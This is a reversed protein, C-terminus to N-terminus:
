GINDDMVVFSQFGAQQNLEPGCLHDEEGEEEVNRDEVYESSECIYSGIVVRVPIHDENRAIIRKYKRTIFELPNAWASGKLPVPRGPFSLPRDSFAVRNINDSGDRINATGFARDYDLRATFKLSGDSINFRQWVVQQYTYGEEIDVPTLTLTIQYSKAKDRRPRGPPYPPVVFNFEHSKSPFAGPKSAKKAQNVLHAWNAFSIFGIIGVLGVIGAVISGAIVARHSPSGASTFTHGTSNPTDSAATPSVDVTTTSSFLAPMSSLPCSPGTM